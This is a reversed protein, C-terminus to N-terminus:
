FMIKSHGGQRKINIQTALIPHKLDLQSFWLLKLRFGRMLHTHFVNNKVDCLPNRSYLRKMYNKPLTSQSLQPHIDINTVWQKYQCRGLTRSSKEPVRFNIQFWIKVPLQDLVNWDCTWPLSGSICRNKNPQKYNCHIHVVPERHRLQVSKFHLEKSASAHWTKSTEFVCWRLHSSQVM